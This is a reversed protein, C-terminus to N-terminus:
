GNATERSMRPNTGRLMFRSNYHGGSQVAKADYVQFKAVDAGAKKAARILEEAVRMDGNHNQGIEAIIETKM